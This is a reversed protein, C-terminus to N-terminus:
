ASADVKPSQVLIAALPLAALLWVWDVRDLALSSVQWALVAGLRLASALPTLGILDGMRIAAMMWHALVVALATALVAVLTRARGAPADTLRLLLAVDVAAVLALWSSTSGSLQSIAVWVASIGAIGALLALLPLAWARASFIPM